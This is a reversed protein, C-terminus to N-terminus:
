QLLLCAPPPHRTRWSISCGRSSYNKTCVFDVTFCDCAAELDVYGMGDQRCPLHVLVTTFLRLLLRRAVSCWGAM